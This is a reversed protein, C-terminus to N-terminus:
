RAGLARDSYGGRDGCLRHMEMVVPQLYVHFSSSSIVGVRQQQQHQQLLTTQPEAIDMM